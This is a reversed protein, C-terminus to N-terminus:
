AQGALDVLFQSSPLDSSPLQSVRSVLEDPIIQTVTIEFAQHLPLRNPFRPCLAFPKENSQLWPQHEQQPLPASLHKKVGRARLDRLFEM